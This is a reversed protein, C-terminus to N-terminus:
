RSSSIANMIANFANKAPDSTASSEVRRERRRCSASPPLTPACAAILRSSFGFPKQGHNLHANGECAEPQAPGAFFRDEVDKVGPQGRKDRRRGRIDQMAKSESQREDHHAIRVHHDALDNRLIQANLFRVPQSHNHRRSQENEITDRFRKYSQDLLGRAEETAHEAETPLLVPASVRGFFKAIDDTGTTTFSLQLCKFLFDQLTDEIQVFVAARSIM